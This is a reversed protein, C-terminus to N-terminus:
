PGFCTAECLIFYSTNSTLEKIMKINFRLVDPHRCDFLTEVSSGNGLAFCNGHAIMELNRQTGWKLKPFHQIIKSFEHSRQAM